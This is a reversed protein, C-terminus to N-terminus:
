TLSFLDIFNNSFLSLFFSFCPWSSNAASFSLLMSVVVRQIGRSCDLLNVPLYILYYNLSALLKKSTGIGQAHYPSPFPSSFLILVSLFYLTCIFLRLSAFHTNTHRIKEREDRSLFSFFVRARLPYNSITCYHCPAPFISRTKSTPSLLLLLRLYFFSRSGDQTCCRLTDSPIFILIQHHCWGTLGIRDPLPLVLLPHFLLSPLFYFQPIIQSPSLHIISVHM